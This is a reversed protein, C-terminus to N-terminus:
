LHKKFHILSLCLGLETGQSLTSDRQPGSDCSILEVRVALPFAPSLSTVVGPFEDTTSSCTHLPQDAVYLKRSHVIAAWIAQIYTHIPHTQQLQTSM